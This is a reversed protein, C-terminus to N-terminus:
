AHFRRIAEQYVDHTLRATNAWSFATARRLSRERLLSRLSPTSCLNSLAEVWSQTQHPPCHIAAGGSVEILAPDTSAVVPAGCQMAELVPLGFGEYFSPFVFALAGSYLAPLASDDPADLHFIGAGSPIPPADARRRGALILDVDLIRRLQRWADLLRPINKRPELTGVYLLYPRPHSYPPAPRFLGSAAHPVAVITAPPLRFRDIAARRVAESPTIIMTAARFRLIWPTRRRVRLADHHWAPDMWPSLDHLTLVSPHGPLYPVSFDTGHFVGARIRTLHRRLGYLWWRKELFGAPPQLGAVPQDSVLIIEDAPDHQALARALEEVYRAIGGKPVLLPTADLAIRM